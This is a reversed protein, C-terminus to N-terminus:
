MDTSQELFARTEPDRANTFIMEATDLEVIRGKNFFAVRDAMHAATELSQAVLVIAMSKRLETVLDLTLAFSMRDGASTPRDILMLKPDLALARAICLQRRQAGNLDTGMTTHLQDKVVDWLQARRLSAEILDAMLGKTKALRNLKIGYAINDWISLPFPNTEQAVLALHRRLPPLDTKPNLLDQDQFLIQGSRVPSRGLQEMRALSRLLMSKGGGERGVFALVEKPFLDFSVHHILARGGSALSLGRVSM